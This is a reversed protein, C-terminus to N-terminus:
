WIGNNLKAKEIEDGDNADGKKWQFEQAIKAPNKERHKEM